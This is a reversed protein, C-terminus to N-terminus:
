ADQIHKYEGDVFKYDELKGRMEPLVLALVPMRVTGSALKGDKSLDIIADLSDWTTLVPMVVQRVFDDVLRERKECPIEQSMDFLRQYKGKFEGKKCIAGFRCQVPFDVPLPKGRPLHEIQLYEIPYFGLNPNYWPKEYWQNRELFLCQIGGPVFRRWQLTRAKEFGHISVAKEFAKPIVKADEKM